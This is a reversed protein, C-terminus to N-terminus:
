DREEEEDETGEEEDDAVIDPSIKRARAKM